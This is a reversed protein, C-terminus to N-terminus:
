LGRISYYLTGLVLQPVIVNLVSIGYGFKQVRSLGILLIRFSLLLCIITLAYSIQVNKFNGHIIFSVTLNILRFIEPILCLAVVTDINRKTAQGKWIKGFYFILNVWVARFLIGAFLGALLLVFLILFTEQLSPDSAILLPIESEGVGNLGLVFYLLLGQGQVWDSDKFEDITEKTKVWISTWPRM